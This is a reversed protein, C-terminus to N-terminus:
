KGAKKATSAIWRVLRYFLYAVGTATIAALLSSIFEEPAEQLLSYYELSDVLDALNGSLGILTFCIHFTILFVPLFIAIEILAKKLAM